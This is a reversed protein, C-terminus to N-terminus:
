RRGRQAPPVVKRRRSPTSLGFECERRILGTAHGCVAASARDRAERMSGREIMLHRCVGILFSQNLATKGRPKRRLIAASGVQRVPEMGGIFQCSQFSDMSGAALESTTVCRGHPLVGGHGWGEFGSPRDSSAKAVPQAFGDAVNAPKAFFKPLEPSVKLRRWSARPM